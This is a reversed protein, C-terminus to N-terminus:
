AISDLKHPPDEPEGAAESGVEQGRPPAPRRRARANREQPTPPQSLPESIGVPAQLRDSTLDAM